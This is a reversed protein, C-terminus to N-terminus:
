MVDVSNELMDNHKVCKLLPITMVLVVLYLALENIWLFHFHSGNFNVILKSIWATGMWLISLMYTITFDCYFSSWQWTETVPLTTHNQKLIQQGGYKKSSAPTMRLQDCASCHLFNSKILSVMYSHICTIWHHCNVM